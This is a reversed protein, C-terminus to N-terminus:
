GSPASRARWILVSLLWALAFLAIIAAGIAGANEALIGALRSLGGAAPGDAFLGLLELGGIAVAVVVSTATIAMNYYLKRLPEVSAWRYAGAMMVADLTDILAMGATFLAPFVMIAALRVGHSAQAASMALVGIETATDFGLGFLVGLPYMHWSKAILRFVGRLLRGILGRQALLRNLEADIPKSGRRVQLFLRFVSFLIVCNALALAFLSLASVGTGIVSALPKYAAASTQLRGTTLAVGLALLIVVTAHGLSFFLGTTTAPRGAEILKRTANDIAAIHDADVAHRLGFVYALLATGLLMANGRCEIAAWGWVAVNVVVLAACLAAVRAREGEGRRPRDAPM